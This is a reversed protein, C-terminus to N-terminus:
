SLEFDLVLVTWFWHSVLFGWSSFGSFGMSIGLGHVGCFGIPGRVAEGTTWRKPCSTGFLFHHSFSFSHCLFVFLIWFVCFYRFYGVITTTTELRPLQTWSTEVLETSTPIGKAKWPVLGAPSDAWSRFRGCAIIKGSCGGSWEQYRPCKQSHRQCFHYCAGLKQAHRQHKDLKLSFKSIGQVWIKFPGPAPFPPASSFLLDDHPRGGRKESVIGNLPLFLQSWKIDPNCTM